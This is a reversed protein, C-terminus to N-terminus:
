VTADRRGPCRRRTPRSGPIGAAFDDRLQGDILRVRVQLLLRARRPDWRMQQSKSMLQNVASEAFASSIRRGARYRRGYNPLSNTNNRLYGLLELTLKRIRRAAPKRCM